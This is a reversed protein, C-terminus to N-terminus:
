ARLFTHRNIVVTVKSPDPRTRDAPDAAWAPLRGDARIKLTLPVNLYFTAGQTPDPLSRWLAGTAAWWCREQQGAAVLRSQAVRRFDDNWCSFAEFPKADAWASGEPGLVVQRTSLRWADRRNVIVYAVALKGEDPEGDAELFVTAAVLTVDDWLDPSALNSFEPVTVPQSM